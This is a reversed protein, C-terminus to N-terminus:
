KYREEAEGLEGILAKLSEQLKRDGGLVANKMAVALEGRLRKGLQKLVQQESLSRQEAREARRQADLANRCAMKEEKLREEIRFLEYENNGKLRQKADSALKMAADEVLLLEREAQEAREEWKAETQLLHRESALAKHDCREVYKQSAAATEVAAEQLESMRHRMIAVESTEDFLRRAQEKLRDNELRLQYIVEELADASNQTRAAKLVSVLQKWAKVSNKLLTRLERREGARDVVNFAKDVRRQLKMPISRVERSNKDLERARDGPFGRRGDVELICDGVRVQNDPHRGANYDAMAGANIREVILLCKGEVRTTVGMRQFQGVLVEVSYDDGFRIDQRSMEYM